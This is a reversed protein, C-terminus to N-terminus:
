LGREGWVSVLGNRYAGNGGLLSWVVGILGVGRMCVGFWEWVGWKWRASELSYGYTGRGGCLGSVRGICGWKGWIPGLGRRYAGRGKYLGWVM